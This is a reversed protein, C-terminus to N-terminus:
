LCRLLPDLSVFRFLAADNTKIYLHGLENLAMKTFSNSVTVQESLLEAVDDTIIHDRNRIILQNLKPRRKLHEISKINCFGCELLKLGKIQAIAQVVDDSIKFKLRLQVLKSTKKDSLAKILLLLSTSNDLTSDDEHDPDLRAGKSAIDEPHHDEDWGFDMIQVPQKVIELHQLKDLLALKVYERDRANDSIVFKLQKLAPCHGVIQNLQGHDSFHSRNIELTVLAPNRACFETLDSIALSATLSLKGIRTNAIEILNNGAINVTIKKIKPLRDKDVKVRKFQGSIALVIEDFIYQHYSFYSDSKYSLELSKVLPNKLLARIFKDLYQDVREATAGQLIQHIREFKVTMHSHPVEQLTAIEMNNYMSISWAKVIRRIKRCTGAFNFIDAYKFTDYLENKNRKECEAKLYDLIRFIEFHSIDTLGTM